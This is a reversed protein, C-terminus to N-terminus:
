ARHCKDESRAFIIYGQSCLINYGVPPTWMHLAHTHCDSDINFDFDFHRRPLYMLRGDPDLTSVITCNGKALEEASIGYFEALSAYTDGLQVKYPSWGDPPLCDPNPTSTSTPTSTELSILSNASTSHQFSSSLPRMNEMEATSTLDSSLAVKFGSEHLAILMSGFLIVSSLLAMLVGLIAQRGTNM